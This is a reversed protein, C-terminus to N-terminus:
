SKAFATNLLALVYLSAVAFLQMKKLTIVRKAKNVRSMYVVYTCAYM